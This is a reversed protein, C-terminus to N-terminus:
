ACLFILMVRIVLDQFIVVASTCTTLNSRVSDKAFCALFTLTFNAALFLRRPLSVFVHPASGLVNQVMACARMYDVASYVDTTQALDVWAFLSSRSSLLAQHM